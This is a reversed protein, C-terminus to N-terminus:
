LVLFIVELDRLRCFSTRILLRLRSRGLAYGLPWKLFQCAEPGEAPWLFELARGVDNPTNNRGKGIELFIFERLPFLLLRVFEGAASLLQLADVGLPAEM